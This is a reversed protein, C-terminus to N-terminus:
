YRGYRQIAAMALRMSTLRTGNNISGATAWVLGRERGTETTSDEPKVWLETKVEVPRGDAAFEIVLVNRTAAVWTRMTLECDNAAMSAVTQADVITQTM